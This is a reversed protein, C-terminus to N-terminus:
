YCFSTVFLFGKIELLMVIEEKLDWVRRLIKNLRLWRVSSHYIIDYYETELDELLARFKRHNLARARILNILSVIPDIVNKINLKAKCM